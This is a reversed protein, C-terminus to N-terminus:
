KSGLWKIFERLDNSNYQWAFEKALQKTRGDAMDNFDQLKDTEFHFRPMDAPYPLEPIKVEPIVTVGEIKGVVGKKPKVVKADGRVTWSPKHSGESTDKTIHGTKVMRSIHIVAAAVMQSRKRELEEAIEKVHKEVIKKSEEAMYEELAKFLARGFDSSDSAKTTMKAM